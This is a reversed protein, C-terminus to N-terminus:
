CAEDPGGGPRERPALLRPRARRQSSLYAAFAATIRSLDGAHSTNQALNTCEYPDNQIDFLWEGLPPHARPPACVVGPPPTFGPPPTQAIGGTVQM